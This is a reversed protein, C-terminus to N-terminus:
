DVSTAKLRTALGCLLKIDDGDIDGMRILPLAKLVQANSLSHGSEAKSTIHIIKFAESQSLHLLAAAKITAIYKLAAAKEPKTM